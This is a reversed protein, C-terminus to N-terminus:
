MFLSEILAKKNIEWESGWRTKLEVEIVDINNEKGWIMMHGQKQEERLKDWSDQSFITYWSNQAYNSVRKQSIEEGLSFVTGWCNHFTYITKINEKNIFNLLAQIELESAPKDWASIDFYEWSIFMKSEKKWNSTPFNRNLDVNKANTKGKNWGRFYDSDNLAIKYGDLNLCPINFIEKNKLFDVDGGIQNNLFNIWHIMLKVTGVENGHIWWFYLIKEKWGWFHYTMIEEWMYTKWISFSEWKITDQLKPNDFFNDKIWIFARFFFWINRKLIQIM